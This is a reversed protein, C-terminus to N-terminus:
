RGGDGLDVGFACLITGLLDEARERMDAAFEDADAYNGSREAEDFMQALRQRDERYSDLEDSCSDLIFRRAAVFDASTDTDTNTTM